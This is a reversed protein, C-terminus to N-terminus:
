RGTSAQPTFPRLIDSGFSDSLISPLPLVLSPIGNVVENFDDYGARDVEDWGCGVLEVGIGLRGVDGDSEVVLGSVMGQVCSEQTKISEVGVAMSITRRERRARPNKGGRRRFDIAYESRSEGGCESSRERGLIVM